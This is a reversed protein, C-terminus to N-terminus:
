RVREFGNKVLVGQGEDSLVADIFSQAAKQRTSARVIAIPYLIPDHSDPPATAVSRVKDDGARVDSAYVIGAAVEGRVVYDLVQRVDEGAILRPQVQQWLNLRTLSQEAYQGVPVTKSNGVAIKTVKANSLDSFSKLGLQSDAPVVLVLSNRVFDRRTEPAILTQTALADMQQSGASAFVDVPAGSEVQKQLAGSAGFNFSIRTGTRAEHQKGIEQFAERLSAAASVTIESAGQQGAPKAPESSRCAFSFFALLLLAPWSLRRKLDQTHM